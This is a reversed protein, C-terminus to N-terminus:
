CVIDYWMKDCWCIIDYLYWTTVEGGPLADQGFIYGGKSCIIWDKFNHFLHLSMTKVQSSGGDPYFDMHGLQELAGARPQLHLHWASWLTTASHIHKALFPSWVPVYIVAPELAGNTHIIDVFQASDPSSLLFSLPSKWFLLFPTIMLPIIVLYLNSLLM